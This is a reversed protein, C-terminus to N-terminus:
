MDVKHCICLITNNLLFDELNSCKRYIQSFLGKKKEPALLKILPLSTHCGHLSMTPDVQIPTFNLTVSAEYLLLHLLRYAM